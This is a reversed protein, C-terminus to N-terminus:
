GGADASLLLLRDGDYLRQKGDRLFIQGNINAIYGDRLASGTICDDALKPFQKGLRRIVDAVSVGPEDFELEIKSLGARSRPIGFFEVHITPM